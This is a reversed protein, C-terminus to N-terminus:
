RHVGSERVWITPPSYCGPRLHTSHRSAELRTGLSRGLYPRRSHPEQGAPVRLLLIPKTASNTKTGAGLSRPPQDRASCHVTTRPCPRVWSRRAAPSGVSLPSSYTQYISSTTTGKWTEFPVINTPHHRRPTRLRSRPPGANRLPPPIRGVRDPPRHCRDFCGLSEM